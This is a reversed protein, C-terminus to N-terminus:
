WSAPDLDPMAVREFQPSSICLQMILQLYTPRRMLKDEDEKEKDRANRSRAEIMPAM